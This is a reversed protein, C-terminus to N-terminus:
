DVLTIQDGHGRLYGTVTQGITGRTEPVALAFQRNLFFDISRARFRRRYARIGFHDWLDGETVKTWNSFTLACSTSM